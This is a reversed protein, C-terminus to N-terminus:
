CIMTSYNNSYGGAKIYLFFVKLPERSIQHELIKGQLVKLLCNQSTRLYTLILKLDKKKFLILQEHSWYATYWVWIFFLFM